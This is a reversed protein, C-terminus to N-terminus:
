ESALRRLDDMAQKLEDEVLYVALGSELDPLATRLQERTLESPTLGASILLRSVTYPAILAMLRSAEVVADFLKGNSTM